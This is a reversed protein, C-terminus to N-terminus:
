CAFIVVKRTGVYPSFSLGTEKLDLDIVAAAKSRMDKISHKVTSDSENRITLRNATMAVFCDKM